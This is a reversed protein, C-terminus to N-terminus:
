VNVLLENLQTLYNSYEAQSIGLLGYETPVNECHKLQTSALLPEVYQTYLDCYTTGDCQIGTSNDSVVTILYSQNDVTAACFYVHLPNSSENNYASAYYIAWEVGNINRYEPGTAGQVLYKGITFNFSDATQLSYEIKNTNDHYIQGFSDNGGATDLVVNSGTFKGSMFNNDFPTVEKNLFTTCAFIGLIIVIIVVIAIIIKSKKEM